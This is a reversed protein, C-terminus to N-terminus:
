SLCTNWFFAFQQLWRRTTDLSKGNFSSYFTNIRRKLEQFRREIHNRVGHKMVIHNIRLHYFANGYGSAADTIVTDPLEGYLEGIGELSKRTTYYNRVPFIDTHVVEKTRPDLAAFVTQHEGRQKVMTEDMVVLEKPTENAPESRSGALKGGLKRVWEWVAVHSVDIGLWKLVKKVKRLSLGVNYLVLGLKVYFRETRGREFFNIRELVEEM